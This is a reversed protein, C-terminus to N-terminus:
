SQMDVSAFLQPAFNTEALTLVHSFLYQVRIVAVEKPIIGPKTTLIGKNSIVFVCVFCACCLATSSSGHANDLFTPSYASVKSTHQLCLLGDYPGNRTSNKFGFM